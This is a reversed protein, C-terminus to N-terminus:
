PLDAWGDTRRDTWGDCEPTTHFHLFASPHVVQYGLTELKRFPQQSIVRDLYSKLATTSGGGIFVASSHM